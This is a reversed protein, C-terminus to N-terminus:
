LGTFWQEAQLFSKENFLERTKQLLSGRMVILISPFYLAGKYPLPWIKSWSVEPRAGIVLM